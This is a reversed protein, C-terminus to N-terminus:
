ELDDQFKVNFFISYVEWVTKVMSSNLYTHNSQPSLSSTSESFALEKM